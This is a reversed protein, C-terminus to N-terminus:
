DICQDPKTRHDEAMANDGHAAALEMGHVLPQATPEEGVLVAGSEGGKGERMLKQGLLKPDWRPVM